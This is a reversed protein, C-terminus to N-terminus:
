SLLNGTAVAVRHAFSVRPWPLPGTMNTLPISDLSRNCLLLGPSHYPFRAVYAVRATKIKLQRVPPEVFPIGLLHQSAELPKVLIFIRARRIEQVKNVSERSANEVAETRARSECFGAQSQEVHNCVEDLLPIKPLNITPAPSQPIQMVVEEMSMGNRREL